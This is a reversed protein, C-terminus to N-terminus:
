HNIVLPIIKIVNETKCFVLYYGTVLNTADFSVRSKANNFSHNKIENGMLDFIGVQLKGKFSQPLIMEFVDDAPNPIIAFNGVNIGTLEEVDAVPTAIVTITNDNCATSNIKIKASTPNEDKATYQIGIKYPSNQELSIPPPGALGWDIQIRDSGNLDETFEIGDIVVDANKATITIERLETQNWEINSFDIVSAPILLNPKVNPTIQFSMNESVGQNPFNIIANGGECDTKWTVLCPAPEGYTGAENLIEHYINKLEQPNTVNFWYNPTIDTVNKGHLTLNSLFDQNEKSLEDDGIKIVYVSVNYQEILDFIEQSKIPGGYEELHNGDTLFVLVPKCQAIKPDCYYLGSYKRVNSDYRKHLFAANYNTGNYLDQLSYIAYLLSDKDTTFTRIPEKPNFPNALADGCFATIATETRKPDINNAWDKLVDKAVDIKRAGGPLTENMSESIDVVMVASFCTQTPSPIVFDVIQRSVFKKDQSVNETILIDNKEIDRIENGQSDFLRFGTTILPYKSYDNFYIKISQGSLNASSICFVIM